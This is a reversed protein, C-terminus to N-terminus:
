GVMRRLRIRQRESTGGWCGRLGPHAMAHDLCERRVPCPRCFSLAEESVGENRPFFLHSPEGRCAASDMWAPRQVFDALTPLEPADPMMLWRSLVSPDEATQTSELTEM